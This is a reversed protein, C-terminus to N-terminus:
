GPTPGPRAQANKLATWAADFHDVSILLHDRAFASFAMLPIGAEALVRSILAMFGIMDLGLPLDFTILRYEGGIRHDPLRAAFFEWDQQPLVLTVEDKDAILASFPTGIEALVGAAAMIARPPLQILLYRAEDTYLPTQAFAQKATTM